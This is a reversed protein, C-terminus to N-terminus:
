HHGHYTCEALCNSSTTTQQIVVLATVVEVLKILQQSSSRHSPRRELNCLHELQTLLQNGELELDIITPNLIPVLELTYYGVVLTSRSPM